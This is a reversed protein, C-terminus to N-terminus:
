LRYPGGEEVSVGQMGYWFGRCSGSFLALGRRVCVFAKFVDMVVLALFFGGGRPVEDRGAGVPARLYM